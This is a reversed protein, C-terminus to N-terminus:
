RSAQPPPAQVRPAVTHPQQWPAASLARTGYDAGALTFLIVGAVLGAGAAMRVLSHSRRLDMFMLAILAAKAVGVGLSIVTNWVNLPLLATGATLALLALLAAWTLWLGRAGM